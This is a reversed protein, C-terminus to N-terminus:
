PLHKNLLLKRKKVSLLSTYIKPIGSEIYFKREKFFPHAEKDDSCVIPARSIVLIAVIHQDNFKSNELANRIEQEKKDILNNNICKAKGKNNLELIIDAYQSVKSLEQMYKTGGYVIIARARGNNSYILDYVPKYCDHQSHNKNFICSLVNIDIVIGNEVVSM